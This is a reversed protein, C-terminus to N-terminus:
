YDIYFNLHKVHKRKIDEFDLICKTYLIYRLDSEDYNLYQIAVHPQRNSLITRSSTMVRAKNNSNLSYRVLIWCFLYIDVYHTSM